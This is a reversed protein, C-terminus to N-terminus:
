RKDEKGTENLAGKAVPKNALVVIVTCGGYKNKEFHLYGRNGYYSHLRAQVNYVGIHRGVSQEMLLNVEMDSPLNLKNILEDSLGIGDDEIAIQIDDDKIKAQISIKGRYGRNKLGHLLSNEVLPQLVFNPVKVSQLDENVDIQFTLNTYRYRMLQLYARILVIEDSLSVLPSNIQSGQRYFTVLQMLMEAAKADGNLAATIRITDLTNYLFHPNIQSKLYKMALNQEYLKNQQITIKNKYEHEMLDDIHKLLKGIAIAVRGVEDGYIDKYDWKLDGSNLGTVKESLEELGRLRLRTFKYSYRVAVIAFIFAVLLCFLIPYSLNTVIAEFPVLATFNMKSYSSRVSVMWYLRKKYWVIPIRHNRGQNSGLRQPIRRGTLKNESTCIITGLNTTMFYKSGEELSFDLNTEVVDRIHSLRTILVIHGIEQHPHFSRVSRILYLYKREAPDNSNGNNYYFFQSLRGIYINCGAVDAREKELERLFNIYSIAKVFSRVTSQTDKHFVVQDDSTLSIGQIDGRISIMSTYLRNLYKNATRQEKNDFSNYKVLIDQLGEDSFSIMSVRGMDRLMNDTLNLTCKAVLQTTRELRRIIFLSQTLMVVVMMALIALVFVIGNSISVRIVISNQFKTAGRKKWSQVFVGIM